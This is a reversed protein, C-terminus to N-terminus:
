NRPFLFEVKENPLILHVKSSEFNWPRHLDVTRSSFAVPSFMSHIRSIKSLRFSCFEMRHRGNMKPFALLSHINFALTLLLSLSLYKYLWRVTGPYCAFGDPCYVRRMDKEWRTKTRISPIHIGVHMSFSRAKSAALFIIM